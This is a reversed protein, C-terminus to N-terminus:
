LSNLCLEAMKMNHLAYLFFSQTKQIAQQSFLQSFVGFIMQKVTRIQFPFGLLSSFCVLSEQGWFISFYDMRQMDILNKKWNRRRGQGKGPSPSFVLSCCSTTKFVLVKGLVSGKMLLQQPRLGTKFVHVLHSGPMSTQKLKWLIQFLLESVHSSWRLLTKEWIGEIKFTFEVRGAGGPLHPKTVADLWNVGTVLCM